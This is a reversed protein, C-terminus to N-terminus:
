ISPRPGEFALLNILEEDDHQLAWDYPTTGDNAQAGSDCGAELLLKVMEISGWNAAEHLLTFGHMDQGFPNAKNELLLCASEYNNRTIAVRLPTMIIENGGEIEINAGHDILLQIIAPLNFFAAFHV